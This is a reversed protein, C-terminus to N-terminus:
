AKRRPAFRTNHTEAAFRTFLDRFEGRLRQKDPELTDIARVTRRHPRETFHEAMDHLMHPQVPADHFDGLDDQPLLHTFFAMVDRLKKCEIRLDHLAQSIPATPRNFTEPVEFVAPGTPVSPADRKRPLPKM